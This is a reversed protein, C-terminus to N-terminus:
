RLNNLLEPFERFLPINSGYPNFGSMRFIEYYTLGENTGYQNSILPDTHYVQEIQPSEPSDNNEDFFVIGNTAPSSM